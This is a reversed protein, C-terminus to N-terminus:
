FTKDLSFLRSKKIFHVLKKRFVSERFSIVNVEATTIKVGPCRTLTM